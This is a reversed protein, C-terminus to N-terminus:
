KGPPFGHISGGQQAGRHQECQQRRRRGARGDASNRRLAAAVARRPRRRHWQLCRQGRVGTAFDPDALTEVLRHHRSVRDIDRVRFALDAEHDTGAQADVATEVAGLRQAMLAIGRGVAAHKRAVEVGVINGVAFADDGVAIAHPFQVAVVHHRHVATSGGSRDRAAGDEVADDDSRPAGGPRRDLVEVATGSQAAPGLIGALFAARRQTVDPEAAIRAAIAGAHIQEAHRAADAARQEFTHSEAAVADAAVTAREVVVAAAGTVGIRLEDVHLEGAVVGAGVAAGHEVVAPLALAARHQIPDTEAAVAGVVAAGDVVVGDVAAGGARQDAVGGEGGVVGAGVAARDVVVYAAVAVPAHHQTVDGELAVARGAAARDEVVASRAVEGVGAGREVAHDQPAVLGGGFTRFDVVLIRRRDHAVADNGTATGGGRLAGAHDARIRRQARQRVIAAERSRHQGVGATRCDIRRVSRRARRGVLALNWARLAAAAVDAGHFHLHRGAVHLAIRGAGVVAAVPGVGIDTQLIRQGIGAAALDTDGATDVRRGVAAVGRDAERDAGALANVAAEGAGFRVQILTIRGDMARHQRSVDAVVVDGVRVADDDISGVAAAAVADADHGQIACRGRARYRRDRQQFPEGDGRSGAGKGPVTAAHIAVPMARAVFAARGQPVQQEAGVHTIGPAAHVVEGVVAATGIRGQLVHGEAVVRRGIEATAAHVVPGPVAAVAARRQGVDGEDAVPADRHDIITGVGAM